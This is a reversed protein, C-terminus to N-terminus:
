YPGLLEQSINNMYSNSCGQSHLLVGMIMMWSTHLSRRRIQMNFLQNLTQHQFEDQSSIKLVVTHEQHVLSAKAWVYIASNALTLESLLSTNTQSQSSSQGTVMPRM